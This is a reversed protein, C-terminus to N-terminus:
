YQLCQNQYKRSTVPSPIFGKQIGTQFGWAGPAKYSWMFYGSTSSEYTDLQAEVYRRVQEIMNSNWANPDAIQCQCGPVSCSTGPTTSGDPNVCINTVPSWEAVFTPMVVNSSRLDGSWGCAKQIHEQQTLTSDTEGFVQYLHTDIGLRGNSYSKAPLDNWYNPGKFADHMVIMLDPNKAQAKTIRYAELAFQRTLDISNAGSSIPENVLELGVVTGQYELAGYKRAMTGLILISRLLNDELQWKVGGMHGSNDFGNQSGPSGHCDIWVKLGAKKAWGIARELYADAGKLYPTKSNDYAWFGIPIRIANIGVSKLWQVDTETFWTDWHTTLKSPAGPTTDFTWQDVASTGEFLNPTMWKELVLWGGINVGRLFTHGYNRPEIGDTFHSPRSGADEIGRRQTHGASSLLSGPAIPASLVSSPICLLFLCILGSIAHTLTRLHM